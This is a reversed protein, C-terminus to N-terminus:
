DMRKEVHVELNCCTDGKHISSEIM